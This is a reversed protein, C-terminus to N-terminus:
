PLTVIFEDSDGILTVPLQGNWVKYWVYETPTLGLLDQEAQRALAEIEIATAEGTATAVRQRAENEAVAVLRASEQAKEDAVEKALVASVFSADFVADEIAVYTVAIGLPELRARLGSLISQALKERQQAFDLAEILGAQEKATDLVAREIVNGEFDRGLDRYVEAAQSAQVRYNVGLVMTVELLDSTQAYVSENRYAQERVSVNAVNHIIPLIFSYGEGKEEEHVGEATYLVGRHGPPVVVLSSLVLLGVAGVGLTRRLRDRRLTWKTQIFEEDEGEIKIRKISAILGAFVGITLVAYLVPKILIETGLDFIM